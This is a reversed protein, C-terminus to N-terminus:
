CQWVQREFSQSFKEDDKHEELESILAQATPAFLERFALHTDCFRM